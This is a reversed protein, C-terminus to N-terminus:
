RCRRVRRFPQRRDRDARVALLAAEEALDHDVPTAEGGPRFGCIEGTVELEDDALDDVPLRARDDPRCSTGTAARDAADEVFVVAPDQEAEAAVGCPVGLGVDATGHEHEVGVSRGILVALREADAVGVRPREGHGLGAGSRAVDPEGVVGRSGVGVVRRDIVDFPDARASRISSRLSTGRM